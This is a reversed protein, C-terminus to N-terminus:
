LEIGFKQAVKLASKMGDEHFGNGLYAGCYFTNRKGSIAEIGAQSRLSKLNFVPHEYTFERIVAEAPIEGQPNLTVCYETSSALGQLRNMHYTLSVPSSLSDSRYRRSNWSAWAKRNPPLVGQHTHLITQNKSYTWAGLLREEEPCPDALIRLAQDAHTALVVKDFSQTEQQTCVRVQNQNRTVSTVESSLQIKGKFASEFARLYAHSGGVVTQWNPRNKLTLLGHHEFFRVFMSAPFELIGLDSSSWIAASLPILYNEQFFKGYRARELYEGLTINDLQGSDLARKASAGFRNIDRLMGWFKPRIANRRQALLGGLDTGAYCFNTNECHYGFSMCSERVSVGLEKLFKQFNPYTQDNLVIFGTDVPLGKDPGSPIIVTNTHGGLRARKEFLTVRHERSLLHASAVGSIGSGIVAIELNRDSM